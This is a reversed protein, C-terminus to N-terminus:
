VLHNMLRSTNYDDQERSVVLIDVQGASTQIFNGSFLRFGIPTGPTQKLLCSPSDSRAVSWGGM